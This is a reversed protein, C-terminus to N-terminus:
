YETSLSLEGMIDIGQEKLFDDVLHFRSSDEIHGFWVGMENGPSSAQTAKISFLAINNQHNKDKTLCTAGSYEDPLDKIPHDILNNPYRELLGKYVEIGPIEDYAANEPYAAVLRGGAELFSRLINPRVLVTELRQLDAVIEPCVLGEALAIGDTRLPTPPLKTHIVCVAGLLEESQLLETVSIEYSAQIGGVFKPRNAADEDQSLIAGNKIVEEWAEKVKPDNHASIFKEMTASVTSKDKM